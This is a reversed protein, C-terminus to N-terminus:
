SSSGREDPEQGLGGALGTLVTHRCLTSATTTPAPQAMERHMNLKGPQDGTMVPCSASRHEWTQCFGIVRQNAPVSLEIQSRGNLTQILGSIWSLHQSSSNL